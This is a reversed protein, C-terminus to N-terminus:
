HASASSSLADSHRISIGDSRTPVVSSLCDGRAYSRNMMSTFRSSILMALYSRLSRVARAWSCASKASKPVSSARRAYKCRCWQTRPRALLRNNVATSVPYRTPSRAARRRPASILTVSKPHVGSLQATCKIVKSRTSSKPVLIPQGSTIMSSRAAPASGFAPCSSPEPSRM